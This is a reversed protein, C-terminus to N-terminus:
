YDLWHQRTEAGRMKAVSVHAGPPVLNELFVKAAAWNAWPTGPPSASAIFYWGAMALWPRFFSPSQVLWGIQEHGKCL